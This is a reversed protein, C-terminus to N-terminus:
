IFGSWEGVCIFVYNCGSLIIFKDCHFGEDGIGDFGLLEEVFVAQVFLESEKEGCVVSWDAEVLCGKSFQEFVEM